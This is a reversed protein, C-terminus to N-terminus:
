IDGTSEGVYACWVLIRRRCRTTVVQGNRIGYLNCERTAGEGAVGKEGVWFLGGLLSTHRAARESSSYADINISKSLSKM